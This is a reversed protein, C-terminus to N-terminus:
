QNSNILILGLNFDIKGKNKLCELGRLINDMGWSCDVM